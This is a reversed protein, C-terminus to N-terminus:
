LIWLGKGLEPSYIIKSDSIGKKSLRQNLKLINRDKDIVKRTKKDLARWILAPVKLKKTSHTKTM